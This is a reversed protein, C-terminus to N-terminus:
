SAEDTVVDLEAEELVATGGQPLVRLSERPFEVAVADGPHYREDSGTNPIWAQITKGSVLHLIVQLTSGVYITREVMAPLRNQGITGQAEIIVREPRITVKADGATDADGQGAVLTFDGISVKCGGDTVGGAKADMLNSVRPLRGCATSPSRLDRPARVQEVRGQSMVAIRDSM